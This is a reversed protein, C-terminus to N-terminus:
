KSGDNGLQNSKFIAKLHNESNICISNSREMPFSPDYNMDTHGINNEYIM